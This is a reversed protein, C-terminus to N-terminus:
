NKQLETRSLFPTRAEVSTPVYKNREDSNIASINPLNTNKTTDVRTSLALATEADPLSDHEKTMNVM